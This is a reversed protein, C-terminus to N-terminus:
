STTTTFRSKALPAANQSRHSATIRWDDVGAFIAAFDRASPAFTMALSVHSKRSRWQAYYILGAQGIEGPMGIFSMSNILSLLDAFIDFPAKRYALTALWCIFSANERWSIDIIILAQCKPMATHSKSIKGKSIDLRTSAGYNHRSRLLAKLIRARTDVVISISLLFSVGDRM